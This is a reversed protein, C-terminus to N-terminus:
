HHKACWWSSGGSRIDRSRHLPSRKASSRATSTRRRHAAAEVLEPVVTTGIGPALTHNEPLLGPPPPSAATPKRGTLAGADQLESGPACVASLLGTLLSVKHTHRAYSAEDLTPPPADGNKVAARDYYAQTRTVDERLDTGELRLTIRTVDDLMRTADGYNTILVLEADPGQPGSVDDVAALLVNIAGADDIVLGLAPAPM